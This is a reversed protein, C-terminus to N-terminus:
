VGEPSVREARHRGATIREAHRDDRLEALWDSTQALENQKDRHGADPRVKVKM